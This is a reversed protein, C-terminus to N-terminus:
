VMQTTIVVIMLLHWVIGCFLQLPANGQPFGKSFCLFVNCMPFHTYYMTQALFHLSDVCVCVSCNIVVVHPNSGVKGGKLEM